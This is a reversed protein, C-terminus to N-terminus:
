KKAKTKAKPKAKSKPEAKAEPPAEEVAAMEAIESEAEGEHDADGTGEADGDLEVEPVGEVDEVAAAGDPSVKKLVENFLAAKRPDVKPPPAQEHRYDHDSHCTRCRVKAAAGGIVSVVAHNMVRKCRVCFDDIDDGLRIDRM